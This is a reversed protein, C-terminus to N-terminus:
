EPITLEVIEKKLNDSIINRYFDKLRNSVEILLESPAVIKYNEDAFVTDRVISCDDPYDGTFITNGVQKKTTEDEGKQKFLKYGWIFNKGRIGYSMTEYWKQEAQLSFRINDDTKGIQKLTKVFVDLEEIPATINHLRLTENMIFKGKFSTNKSTNELKCNNIQSVKM